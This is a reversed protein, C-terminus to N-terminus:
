KNNPKLGGWGGVWGVEVAGAAASTTRSMTKKKTKGRSDKVRCVICGADDCAPASEGAFVPALVQQGHHHCVTPGRGEGAGASQGDTHAAAMGATATGAPPHLGQGQEHADAQRGQDTQQDAQDQECTLDDCGSFFVFLCVFFLVCLSSVYSKLSKQEESIVTSFFLINFKFTSLM